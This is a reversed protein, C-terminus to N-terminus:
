KCLGSGAAGLIEVLKNQSNRGAGEGPFSGGRPPVARGRFRRPAGRLRSPVPRSQVPRSLPRPPAPTLAPLPSPPFSFCDQRAKLLNSTLLNPLGQRGLTTLVGLAQTLGSYHCCRPPNRKQPRPSGPSPHRLGSRPADRHWTVSRALCWSCRCLVSAPHSALLAFM